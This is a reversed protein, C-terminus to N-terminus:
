LLDGTDPVLLSPSNIVKTQEGSLADLTAEYNLREAATHNIPGDWMISPWWLLLDVIGLAPNGMYFSGGGPLFGLGWATNPNKEVILTGDEKWAEYQIREQKDLMGCSAVSVTLALALATTKM